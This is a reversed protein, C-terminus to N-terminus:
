KETRDKGDCSEDQHLPVKTGINTIKEVVTGEIEIVDAKSM